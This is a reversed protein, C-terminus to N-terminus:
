STPQGARAQMILGGIAREAYALAQPQRSARPGAVNLVGVGHRAAFAALRLAARQPSLETADILCYPKRHKICFVLTQETGGELEGFYLIATADSDVVNRLTRQRYGGQELETVPYRAPIPGDEAKRGPPCWGGCSFGAKLAADLAGRDVGTQGGSVIKELVVIEERMNAVTAACCQIVKSRYRM